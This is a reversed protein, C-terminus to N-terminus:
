RDTPQALSGAGDAPKEAQAPARQPRPLNAYCPIQQTLRDRVIQALAANLPDNQYRAPDLMPDDPKDTRLCIIVTRVDPSTAQRAAEDLPLNVRERMPMLLDSQSGNTAVALVMIQWVPELSPFRAAAEAFVRRQDDTSFLELDVLNTDRGRLLLLGDIMERPTGNQVWRIITAVDATAKAFTPRLVPGADASLCYPGADYAGSSLMEFGQLVRYRIRAPKDYVQDLLMGIPGIDPSLAVRFEERPNLRLRRDFSAVQLLAVTAIPDTAVMVNPAILFRSNIPRDSGVGLPIPSLNRITVAMRVDEFTRLELPDAKVTLSQFRRPSEAISEIWAPAAAAITELRTALPDAPIPKPSLRQARSAAYAGFLTGRHSRAYADYKAASAAADGRSEEVLCLGLQAVADDPGLEALQAAATDAQGARLRSLADLRRLKIPDAAPDARLVDLEQAALELESGALLRATVVEERLGRSRAAAEAETMEPARKEPDALVQIERRASEVLEELAPRVLDPEALSHAALFRLWENSMNLRIEIPQPLKDTPLRDRKAAELTRFANERSQSVVSNLRDVLTRPGETNWLLVSQEVEEDIDSQLGVNNRITNAVLRFRKSGKYAGHESLHRSILVHTDPDLPDANLVALMLELKGVPDDVRESFFTLALSAADKNTADLEVARALRSAFGEADGRERALLAADLALRSRVSNDIAEGEKGLYRDYAALRDDARQLQRIRATILRLQAVTDLPDLRIIERTLEDVRAANGANNQAELLLRLVTEDKPNLRHAIELLEATVRFDTPKPAGVLRLDSVALRALCRSALQEPTEPDQPKPQAPASSVAAVLVCLGAM